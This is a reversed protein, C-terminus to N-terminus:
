YSFSFVFVLSVTLLVLIFFGLIFTRRIDNVQPNEQAPLIVIAPAKATADNADSNTVKAGTNVAVAESDVAIFVINAQKVAASDAQVFASASAMIIVLPLFLALIRRM